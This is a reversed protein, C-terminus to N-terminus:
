GRHLYVCEFLTGDKTSSQEWGQSTICPSSSHHLIFQQWLSSSHTITVEAVLLQRTSCLVKSGRHSTHWGRLPFFRRYWGLLPSTTVTVNLPLLILMDNSGHTSCFSCITTGSSTPRSLVRQHVPQVSYLWGTTPM